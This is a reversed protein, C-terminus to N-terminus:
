LSDDMRLVIVVSGFESMRLYIRIISLLIMNDFVKNVDNCWYM